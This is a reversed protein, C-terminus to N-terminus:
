LGNISYEDDRSKIFKAQSYYPPFGLKNGIGVIKMDCEFQDQM